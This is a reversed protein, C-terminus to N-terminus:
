NQMHTKYFIFDILINIYLNQKLSQIRVRGQGKDGIYMDSKNQEKFDVNYCIKLPVDDTIRQVICIQLVLHCSYM